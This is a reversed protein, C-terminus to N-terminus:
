WHQLYERTLSASSSSRNDACLQARTPTLRCRCVPLCYDPHCVPLDYWVLVVDCFQKCCHCSLAVALWMSLVVTTRRVKLFVTGILVAIVVAQLLQTLVM